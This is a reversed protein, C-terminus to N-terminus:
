YEIFNKLLILLNRNQEHPPYQSSPLLYGGQWSLPQGSLHAYLILFLGKCRRGEQDHWRQLLRKIRHQLSRSLPHRWLLVLLRKRLYLDIKDDRPVLKELRSVIEGQVYSKPKKNSIAELLNISSLQEELNESFLSELLIKCGKDIGMQCLAAAASLRLDLWEDSLLDILKNAYSSLNVDLRCLSEIAAARVAPHADPSFSVRLCVDVLEIKHLLGITQFASVGKLSDGSWSELLAQVRESLPYVEILEGLAPLFRTVDDSDVMALLTPEDLGRAEEMQLLPLSDGTVPDNFWKLM